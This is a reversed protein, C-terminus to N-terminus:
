MRENLVPVPGDKMRRVACYAAATTRAVSTMCLYDEGSKVFCRMGCTRLMPCTQCRSQSKGYQDIPMCCKTQRGDAEIVIASGRFTGCGLEIAWGVSGESFSRFMADSMGLIDLPVFKRKGERWSDVDDLLHEVVTMWERESPLLDADSVFEFETDVEHGCSAELDSRITWYNVAGKCLTCRINTTLKPISLLTVARSFSEKSGVGSRYGGYPDISIQVRMRDAYTALMNLFEEFVGNSVFLGTSVAVPLDTQVLIDYILPLNLLPEGGLISIRKINKNILHEIDTFMLLHSRNLDSKKYCYACTGECTDISNLVLEDAEIPENKQIIEFITDNFENDHHRDYSLVVRKNNLAGGLPAVVGAKPWFAWAEYPAGFSIGTPVKFM